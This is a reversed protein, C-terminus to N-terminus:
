RGYDKGASDRFRLAPDPLIYKKVFEKQNPQLRGACHGRYMQVIVFGPREAACLLVRTRIGSATLETDLLMAGRYIELSRGLKDMTQFFSATMQGADYSVLYLLFVGRTITNVLLFFVM